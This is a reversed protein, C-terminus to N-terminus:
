GGEPYPSVGSADIRYGAEGHESRFREVRLTGQVWVTDFLEGRYAVDEGTVVHVTQNPPPPPVHICAGFYPVLLFDSLMGDVTTLPVVLGSLRVSRGELSQVVPATAWTERLEELLAIARPDDDAIDDVDDPAFPTIPQCDAPTLDEWALDPGLGRTSAPEEVTPEGGGPLGRDQGVDQNEDGCGSLLLVPLLVPLLLSLTPM